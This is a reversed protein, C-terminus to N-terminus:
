RYVMGGDVIITQGTIYDSDKSSLFSVINAVDEPVETRGLAIKDNYSEFVEGPETGFKKSYELDLRKWMGTGAVGPSYANVTIQDKALEKAATQTLGRVAFKSASYPALLEFGEHAAISAANIIKGGTDQKQMQKAAAQIGFLTGKVNINFVADLKSPDLDTISAFQGEIGANNIFVDVSGFTDVAFQVLAEQDEPKSVDGAKAAVGYGRNKFEELTENLVEDNIDTLVINFCDSALREAIGKGLGQASGTIVAVKNTTM